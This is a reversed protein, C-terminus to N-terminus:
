IRHYRGADGREDLDRGTVTLPMLWPRMPAILGILPIWRV